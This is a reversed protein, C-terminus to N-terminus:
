RVVILKTTKEEADRGAGWRVKMWYVGGPLSAGNPNWAIEHIGAPMAGAFPRAVRRGSADIVDVVVPGAAPLALQIRAGGFSPNPMPGRVAFVVPMAQEPAATSVGGLVWTIANEILADRTPLDGIGGLEFSLFAVNGGNSAIGDADFAIVSSGQGTTWTFPALADSAVGVGDQTGYDSGYTHTITAPLVNPVSSIPHSALNKKLNGSSDQYWTTAHLVRAAFTPYGPSSLADYGIEGGEILLKHGALVWNELATRATSSSVPSQNRGASWILADYQPWQTPNIASAQVLTVDYGLAILCDRFTEANAKEGGRALQVPSKGDGGTLAASEDKIVLLNGVTTALTFDETRAPGDVVVDRTQARHHTSRVRLEYGFYPLSLQYSGDGSTTASAHIAGNDSRVADITAALPANTGEERVFGSVEGSPAAPMQFEWLNAGYWAMKTEVTALYGFATLYVDYPDCALQSPLTFQGAADTTATFLPTAGTTDAGSPYGLLAASAIPAATEVSRVTGSVTGYVPVVDFDYRVVNYGSKALASCLTGYSGPAVDLDVVYGSGSANADVGCGRAIITLGALPATGHLHGQYHCTLKGSLGIEPVTATVVGLMSRGGTVSLPQNFLDYTDGPRHGVVELNEGYPPTVTFQVSGDSETIETHAAVGWGRITIEIGPMPVQLTDKVTVSVASTVNIPITSPTITVLAPVVVPISERLPRKNHATITLAAQGVQDVQGGLDLQVHGSADTYGTVQFSGPMRLCVLASDVASSGARVVVDFGASGIPIASAHTATLTQPVQLWLDMSPDGFLNYCEYYYRSNGGGSYYTYVQRKARDTMAGVPYDHELYIADFMRRELIDDEDWYTYNSSGWFAVAGKNVVRVWTEAFCEALEYSGTICAHSTAFPVMEGNTLNRVDNQTFTPGAWSDTSGHGSYVALMRGDNLATRVDQTDGGYYAWISDCQVGTPRMFRNIVYRHTGEAVGHYSGDDSAMFCAKRTWTDNSFLAQEYHTIKDVESQIDANSRGSLRGVSIEPFYDSGIFAGYYLDTATTSGTGIFAPIKDTDGVLLVYSPPVPWTQYANKIYNQIATTTSGIVSTKAVTVVFGKAEKWEVLTSLLPEYTDAAIILYGVPLSPLGRELGLSALYAADNTFWEAAMRDFPQSRYRLFAERADVTSGGRLTVQITIREAVLLQGTAGDWRYPRVTLLAGHAGRLDFPEGVTTPEALPRAYAAASYAFAPPAIGERKSLSPQAPLPLEPLGREAPSVGRWTADVMTVSADAGNALRLPLQLVPLDPSGVEADRGWTLTPDDPRAVFWQRGDRSVADLTAGLGNAELTIQSADQSVVRVDARAASTALLALGLLVATALAAGCKKCM